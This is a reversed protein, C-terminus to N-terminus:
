SAKKKNRKPEFPLANRNDDSSAKKREEEDVIKQLNEPLPERSLIFTQLTQFLNAISMYM